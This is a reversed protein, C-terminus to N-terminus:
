LSVPRGAPGCGVDGMEGGEDEGDGDGGGGEGLLVGDRCAEGCEGAGETCGRKKEEVGKAAANDGNM